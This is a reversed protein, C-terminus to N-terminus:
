PLVAQVDYSFEGGKWVLPFTLKIEDTEGKMLYVPMENTNTTGAQTVSAKVLVIGEAGENKVKIDLTTYYAKDTGNTAAAVPLVTPKPKLTTNTPSATVNGAGSNGGFCGGSVLLVAVLIVIVIASFPKGRKM